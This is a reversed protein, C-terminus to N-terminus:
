LATATAVMTFTETSAPGYVRRPLAGHIGARRRTLPSRAVRLASSPHSEVYWALDTQHLGDVSLLLVHKASPGDASAALPGGAALSSVILGGAGVLLLARTSLRPM